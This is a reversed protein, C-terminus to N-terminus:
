NNQGTYENIKVAVTSRNPLNFWFYNQGNVDNFSREDFRDWGNCPTIYGHQAFATLVAHLQSLTLFGPLTTKITTM